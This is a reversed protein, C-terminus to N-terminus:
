ERSQRRKNAAATVAFEFHITSTYNHQQGQCPGALRSGVKHLQTYQSAVDKILSAERVLEIQRVAHRKHNLRWM